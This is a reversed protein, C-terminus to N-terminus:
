KEAVGGNRRKREAKNKWWSSGQPVPSPSLMKLLLSLYLCLHLLTPFSSLSSLPPFPLASVLMRDQHLPLPAGSGLGPIFVDWPCPFMSLLITCPPLSTQSCGSRLIVVCVVRRRRDTQNGWVPSPPPTVVWSSLLVQHFSLYDRVGYFGFSILICDLFCATTWEPRQNWFYGKLPATGNSSDINHLMLTPGSLSPNTVLTCSAAM